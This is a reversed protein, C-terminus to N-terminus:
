PCGVKNYEIYDFQLNYFIYLTGRRYESGQRRLMRDSNDPDGELLTALSMFLVINVLGPYV